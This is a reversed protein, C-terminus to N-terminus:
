KYVVKGKIGTETELIEDWEAEYIIDAGEPASSALECEVIDSIEIGIEKAQAKISEPDSCVGLFETGNMAAYVQSM